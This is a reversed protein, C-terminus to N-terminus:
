KNRASEQARLKDRQTIEYEVSSLAKVAKKNGTERVLTALLIRAEDLNGEAELLMAANYGATFDGTKEYVELYLDRADDKNGLKLFEYATDMYPDSGKYKLLKIHVTEAYPEIEKMIQSVFTDLKDDIISYSSPLNTKDTSESSYASYSRNRTALVRNTKADIVQYQLALDVTRKYYTEYYYEDKEKDTYKKETRSSTNHTFNVIKGTLYADVPPVSGREIASSVASSSVLDYYGSQSIKTTLESTIYNAIKTEDPEAKNAIASAINIIDVIFYGSSDINKVGSVSFPLVSISKAGNLDFQAPRMVQTSVNTACGSLAIACLSVAFFLKVSTLTIKKMSKNHKM